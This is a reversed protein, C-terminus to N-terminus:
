SLLLLELFGLGQPSERTIEETQLASFLTVYAVCDWWPAFSHALSLALLNGLVCLDTEALVFNLFM